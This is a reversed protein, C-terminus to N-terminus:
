PAWRDVAVRAAGTHHRWAHRQHRDMWAASRKRSHAQPGPQLGSCADPRAPGGQCCRLGTARHCCNAAACCVHLLSKNARRPLLTARTCHHCHPRCCHLQTASHPQNASAALRCTPLLLTTCNLWHFLTHIHQQQAAIGVGVHPRAGKTGSAMTSAALVLQADGTSLGQILLLTLQQISSYAATDLLLCLM